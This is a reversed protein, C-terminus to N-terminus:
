NESNQFLPKQYVQLQTQGADSLKVGFGCHEQALLLSGQSFTTQGCVEDQESMYCLERYDHLNRQSWHMMAAVIAFHCDAVKKKELNAGLPPLCGDLGPTLAQIHVCSLLPLAVVYIADCSASVAEEGTPSVSDPSQVQKGVMAANTM